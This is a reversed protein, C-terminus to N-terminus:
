KKYILFNLSGPKAGIVQELLEQVAKLLMKKKKPEWEVLGSDLTFQSGAFIIQISDISPVKKFVGEEYGQNFVKAFIPAITRVIEINWREQFERNEPLHVAEVVTSKTTVIKKISQMMRKLKEIASLNRDDAIMNYKETINLGTQRVLERLIEQKTNFYYYFTGKAIGAKKIIADVPTKAYGHEKFLNEAALMIEFRRVSPDKLIRKM